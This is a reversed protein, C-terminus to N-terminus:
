PRRLAQGHSRWEGLRSMHTYSSAGRKDKRGADRAAEGCGGGEGCRAM